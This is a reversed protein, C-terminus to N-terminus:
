AYMEDVIKAVATPNYIEAKKILERMEEKPYDFGIQAFVGKLQKGHLFATHRHVLELADAPKFGMDNWLKKCEEPTLRRGHELTEMSPGHSAGLGSVNDAKANSIDYIGGIVVKKDLSSMGSVAYAKGGHGFVTMYNSFEGYEYGNSLADIKIGAMEHKKCYDLVAQVSPHVPQTQVPAMTKTTM